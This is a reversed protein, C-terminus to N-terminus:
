AHVPPATQTRAAALALLEDARRLLATPWCEGSPTPSQPGSALFAGGCHQCCLRRNADSLLVRLPRGCIPCDQTFTAPM